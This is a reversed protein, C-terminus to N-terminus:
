SKGEDSGSPPTESSQEENQPPEVASAVAESTNLSESIKGGAQVFAKYEDTLGKMVIFKEMSLMTNMNRNVADELTPVRKSLADVAMYLKGVIKVAEEMSMEAQQAM